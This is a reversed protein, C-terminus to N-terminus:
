ISGKALFGELFKIGKDTALEWYELKDNKFVAISGPISVFYHGARKSRLETISKGTRKKM